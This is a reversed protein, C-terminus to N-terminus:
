KIFIKHFIIQITSTKGYLQHYLILMNEIHRSNDYEKKLRILKSCEIRQVKLTKFYGERNKTPM